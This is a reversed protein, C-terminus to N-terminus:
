PLAAKVLVETGYGPSSQISLSGPLMAAREKMGMLGLGTHRADYDFGKGDDRVSLIIENEERALM